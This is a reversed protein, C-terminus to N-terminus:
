RKRRAPRLQSNDIVPPRAWAIWRDDTKAAEARANDILERGVKQAEAEDLYVAVLYRESPWQKSQRDLLGGAGHLLLKRPTTEFVCDGLTSHPTVSTVAWLRLTDAPTQTLSM